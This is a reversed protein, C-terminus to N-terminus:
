LRKREDEMDALIRKFLKKSPKKQHDERLQSYGDRTAARVPGMSIASLAWPFIYKECSSCIAFNALAVIVLV